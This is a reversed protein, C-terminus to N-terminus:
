SFAYHMNIIVDNHDVTLLLIKIIFRNINFMKFVQHIITINIKLNTYSHCNKDNKLDKSIINM